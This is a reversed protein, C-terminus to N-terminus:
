AKRTTTLAWIILVDIAILIAASLPAVPLWLFNLLGNLGAVVIGIIFAWPKGVLIFCGVAVLGAGLILHILGWTTSDFEYIYGGVRLLFENNILAAVGALAQALGSMMLMAAAFVSVGTAFTSHRAKQALGSM